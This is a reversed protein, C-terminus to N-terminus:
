HPIHTKTLLCVAWLPTEPEVQPDPRGGSREECVGDKDRLTSPGARMQILGTQLKWHNFSILLCMRFFAPRVIVLLTDLVFDFAHSVSSCIGSGSRNANCEAMDKM